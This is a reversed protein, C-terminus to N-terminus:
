INPLMKQKERGTLKYHNSAECQMKTREKNLKNETRELSLINYKKWCLTNMKELRKVM